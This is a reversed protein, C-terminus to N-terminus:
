GFITSFLKDGITSFNTGHALGAILAAIMVVVVMEIVKAFKGGHSRIAISAALAAVAIGLVAYVLNQMGHINLISKGAAEIV